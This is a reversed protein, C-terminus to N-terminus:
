FNQFVAKTLGQKVVGRHFENHSFIIFIHRFM